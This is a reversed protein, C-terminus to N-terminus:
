RKSLQSIAGSYLTFIYGRTSKRIEEDRTQDTNSYGILKSDKSYTIGHYVTGKLYRLIRKAAGFHNKTPNSAFRSVILVTYVIDLRTEVITYILSGVLSQYYQIEEKTATLIIEKRLQNGLVIPTPYLACDTMGFRDLIKQIYRGQSIRLTKKNRDRTIEMGLYQRIPGLDTMSFRTSLLDKLKQIENSNKARIIQLDDVYISVILRTTKNIFISHDVEIYRYRCEELFERITYYWERPAQKLSYLARLLLYVLNYGIEYGKPQEVYIVEKLVSNLFATIVDIQECDLDFKVVIAFLTKFSQAKVVSAFTQDYNIGFQQEFGRVVWRAKFLITGDAKRKIKYVWKGGLVPMGHVRPLLKWTKMKQFSSYEKDMAASWEKAFPGNMAEEYSQPEYIDEETKVASYSKMLRVFAITTYFDFDPDFDHHMPDEQAVTAM